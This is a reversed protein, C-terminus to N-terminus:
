LSAMTSLLWAKTGLMADAHGRFWGVNILVLRAIENYPLVNRLGHGLHFVPTQAVGDYANCKASVALRSPSSGRVSPRRVNNKEPSGPAPIGAVFCSISFVKSPIQM